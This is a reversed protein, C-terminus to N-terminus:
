CSQVEPGVARRPRLLLPQTVFPVARALGRLLTETLRHITLIVPLPSPM